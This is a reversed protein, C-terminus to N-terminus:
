DGAPQPEDSGDLGNATELLALRTDGYPRISRCELGDITPEPQDSPYELVVLGGPALLRARHLISLARAATGDRVMAFPPDVLWLDFPGLPQLLRAAAEIPRHVVVAQQSGELGLMRLNARLTDIAAKAADVFVVRRAGRSLAEIGLAGSGAYCDLVCQDQVSTGLVNFLAERVREATPRTGGGPPARLRRGGFKGAVVRM